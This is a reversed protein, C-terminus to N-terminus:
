RRLNNTRQQDYQEPRNLIPGSIVQKLRPGQDQRCIEQLHRPQQYIQQIVRM